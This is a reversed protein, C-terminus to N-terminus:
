WNRRASVPKPPGTSSTICARRSALSLRGALSRVSRPNVHQRLLPRVGAEKSRVKADDLHRCTTGATAMRLVHGPRPRRPGDETSRLHEVRLVADCDNGQIQIGTRLQANLQRAKM